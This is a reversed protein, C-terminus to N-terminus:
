YIRLRLLDPRRLLIRQYRTDVIGRSRFSRMHKYVTERTVGLMRALDQQTVARAILIGDDTLQSHEEALLLLKKALRGAVDLFTADEIFEYTERLRTSLSRLVDLAVEPRDALVDLFVDRSIPLAKTARAAIATVPFPRGDLLAMEGVLDGPGRTTLLLDEGAPGPLLLWVAGTLILHAASSPDGRYFLAEGEGFSQSADGSARSAWQLVRVPDVGATTADHIPALEVGPPASSRAGLTLPRAALRTM